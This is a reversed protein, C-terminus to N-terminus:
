RGLYKLSGIFYIKTAYERALPDTVSDILMVENVEYPYRNEPAEDNVYVLSSYPMGQPAWLAYSSSFSVAEPLGANMGYFSLAGAQGYNDGYVGTHRKVSDPLSHYLRIAKDAMEKWGLMDAFDQPLAHHEGDEWQLVGLKKVQTRHYYEAAKGPSMFPLTIPVLYAGIALVYVLLASFIWRRKATHHELWVSGAAFLLPYFGLTYYSKGGILTFLVLMVLFAWAFIRLPSLNINLSLFLLGAMWVPFSNSTLLLQEILFRFPSIFQLQTEQLEEVHHAAPLGHTIQWLLNPLAILLAVLLSLWLHINRLLVRQRTFVIGTFLSVAFIVMMYKSLMGLGLAVGAGYLWRNKQTQFFCILTYSIVSWLFIDLINPQFLLHIRLYASFLYVLGAMLQARWGGGLRQVMAGILLATLAGFFAPWFRVLQETNGLIGTLWGLFPVAPPVEDYGWALHRGEALYLYEDRHLQYDPHIAILPILFKLIAVGVAILYSRSFYKM